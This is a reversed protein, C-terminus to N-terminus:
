QKLYYDKYYGQSVSNAGSLNSTLSLNYADQILQSTDTGASGSGTSININTVGTQPSRYLYDVTFNDGYVGDPNLYGVQANDNYAELRQVIRAQSSREVTQGPKVDFDIDTIWKCNLKIHIVKDTKNKVTFGFVAYSQNCYGCLYLSLILSLLKKM